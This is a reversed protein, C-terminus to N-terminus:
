PFFALVIGAKEVVKKKMRFASMYTSIFLRTKSYYFLVVLVCVTIHGLRRCSKLLIIPSWLTAINVKILNNWRSDAQHRESWTIFVGDFSKWLVPLAGNVYWQGNCNDIAGVCVDNGIKIAPVFGYTTTPLNCNWTRFPHLFAWMAMWWMRKKCIQKVNKM